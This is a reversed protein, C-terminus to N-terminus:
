VHARGIEKKHLVDGFEAILLNFRKEQTDRDFIGFFEFLSNLLVKENKDLFKDEKISLDFAEEISFGMNLLELSRDRVFFDDRLKIDEFLEQPSKLSFELSTRMQSLFLIAKKIEDINRKKLCVMNLGCLLSVFLIATSGIVKM